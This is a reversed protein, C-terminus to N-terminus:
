YQNTLILNYSRPLLTLPMIFISNTTGGQLIDVLKITKVKM